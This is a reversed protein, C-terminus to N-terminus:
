PVSVSGVEALMTCAGGVSGVRRFGLREYLRIAPNDLEVSLSVQDVGQARAEALLARLLRGGVGRGRAESRVGIGLEPVAASVFGYSHCAPSWFRYWAAGLLEGSANEAVVATDGARGWGQLLPVLDPRELGLELAPRALGPRWYAAEFLMRRLFPLEAHTARRLTTM